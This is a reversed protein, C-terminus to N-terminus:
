WWRKGMLSVMGGIIGGVVAAVAVVARGGLRESMAPGTVLM